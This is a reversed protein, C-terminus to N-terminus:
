HPLPYPHPPLIYLSFHELIGFFGLFGFLGVFM